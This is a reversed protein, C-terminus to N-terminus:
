VHFCFLERRKQYGQHKEQRQGRLGEGARGDIGSGIQRGIPTHDEPSALIVAGIVRFEKVHDRGADVFRALDVVAAVTEAPDEGM